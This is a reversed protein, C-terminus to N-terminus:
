ETHDGRPSRRAEVPASPSAPLLVENESHMHRVLDDAFKKAGTCLARWSNCADDPLQQRLLGTLPYICGNRSRLLIMRQHM